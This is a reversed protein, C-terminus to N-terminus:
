EEPRTRVPPDTASVNAPPGAGTRERAANLEARWQIRQSIARLLRHELPKLDPDNHRALEWAVPAPQGPEADVPAAHEHDTSVGLLANVWARADARHDALTKGSWHRSV